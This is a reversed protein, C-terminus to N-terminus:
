GDGAGITPELPAEGGHCRLRDLTPIVTAENPIPTAVLGDDGDGVGDVELDVTACGCGRRGVVRASPIQALLSDRGAFDAAGLVARLADREAKTLPRPRQDARPPTRDAGRM